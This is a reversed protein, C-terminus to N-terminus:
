ATHGMKGGYAEDFSLPKEGKLTRNKNYAVLLKEYYWLEYARIVEQNNHMVNRPPCYRKIYYKEVENLDSADVKIARYRVYRLSDDELLNAMEQLTTEHAQIRKRMNNTQGVYLLSDSAASFMFYVYSTKNDNAEDQTLFPLMYVSVQYKHQM